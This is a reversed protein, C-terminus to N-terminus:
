EQVECEDRDDINDLCNQTYDVGFHDTSIKALSGDNLMETVVQDIEDRLAKGEDTRAFAFTAFYNGYLDTSIDLQDEIGLVKAREKMVNPENLTAVVRGNVIDQIITSIDESYYQLNLADNNEANYDELFSTWADGVTVGIADGSAALDELNPIDTGAKVAISGGGEFYPVTSMYYENIRSDSRALQCAVLDCYGSEVAPLLADWQVMYFEVDYGCRNLVETIVDVDFGSYSGDEEQYEYPQYGSMLGVTVTTGNDADDTGAADEKGGCATLLGLSLCLIFIGIVVKKM